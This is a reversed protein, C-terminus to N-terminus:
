YRGPNNQQQHAAVLAASNPASAFPDDTALANLGQSLQQCMQSISEEQKEKTPSAEPITAVTTGAIYFSTMCDLATPHSVIFMM